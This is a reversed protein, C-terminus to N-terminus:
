PFHRCSSHKESVNINANFGNYDAHQVTCSFYQLQYNGHRREGRLSEDKGVIRGSLESEQSDRICMQVTDNYTKMEAPDITKVRTFIVYASM